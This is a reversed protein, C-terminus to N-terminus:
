LKFECSVIRINAHFTKVEEFNFHTGFEQRLIDVQRTMMEFFISINNPHLEILQNLMIRYLDLGDNGWVLAVRPERKLVNAQVETDLTLDPIYPANSILVIHDFTDLSINIEQKTVFDLLSSNLFDIQFTPHPFYSNFNEKAIELTEYAIDTFIAHKFTNTNQLLVSTGLVGCWTWIDMLLNNNNQINLTKIHESVAEIMYETEPRPILTDQTVKFKNNFFEVYWLIYEMPMTDDVYKNYDTLINQTTDTSLEKEAQTRIEERSIKTHHCILKQMVFKEKYKPNNLLDIIKM